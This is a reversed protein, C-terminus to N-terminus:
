YGMVEYYFQPIWGLQPTTVSITLTDKSIGMGDPNNRQTKVDAPYGPSQADFNDGVISAHCSIIGNSLSIPLQVKYYNTYYTIGGIVSMNVAQISDSAVATGNIQVIDGLRIVTADQGILRSEINLGVLNALGLNRVFANKDPIDAGNENKALRSNANANVKGIRSDVENKSYAGVDYATLVIDALLAKSNVTRTLPVKGNVNNNADNALKRVTHIQQDIEGRTYTDIDSATLTIDTLLAKNNVTRTMPVKSDANNNASNVLEHINDILQSTEEKNYADVDAAVLKIDNVLEKNNIRRTLPVKSDAVKMVQADGDKIRADTEDRTYAGVDAAALKIDNVLEKDNIRRTLPVKSDATKLAQQAENLAREAEQM